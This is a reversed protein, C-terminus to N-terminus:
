GFEKARSKAAQKFPVRQGTSANRVLADSALGATTNIAHGVVKNTLKRGAESRFFSPISRFVPGISRALAGFLFSLPGTGTQHVVPLGRYYPYTRPGGAGTQGRFYQEYEAQTPLRVYGRSGSM